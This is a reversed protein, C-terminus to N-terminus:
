SNKTKLCLKAMASNADVKSQLQNYSSTPVFGIRKALVVLAEPPIEKETLIVISGSDLAM